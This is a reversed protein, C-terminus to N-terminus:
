RLSEWRSRYYEQKESIVCVTLNILKDLQGCFTFRISVILGALFSNRKKFVFFLDTLFSDQPLCRSCHSRKSNGLGGSPNKSARRRGQGSTVVLCILTKEIIMCPKAHLNSCGGQRCGSCPSLFCGSPTRPGCLRPNACVRLVGITKISLTRQLGENKKSIKHKGCNNIFMNFLEHSVM